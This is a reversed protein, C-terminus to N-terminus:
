TCKLVIWNNRIDDNYKSRKIASLLMPCENQKLHQLKKNKAAFNKVIFLPNYVPM